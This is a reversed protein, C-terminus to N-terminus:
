RCPGVPICGTLECCKYAVGDVCDYYCPNDARTDVVGVGIVMGVAFAIVLVMYLLARRM